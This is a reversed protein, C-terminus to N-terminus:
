ILIKCTIPEHDSFKTLSFDRFSNNKIDDPYIKYFSENLEGLNRAYAPIFNKCNPKIDEFDDENDQCGVIRMSKVFIWDLRFHFLPNHELLKYTSKFGKTTRQNSNALKGAKGSHSLAKNGSFDFMNKDTFEFNILKWFLDASKNRLYIPLGFVTPDHTKRLTNFAFLSPSLIINLPNFWNATARALNQWDTVTRVIIKTASTPDGSAESNNFDGALVLPTDIEKLEKLLHALQKKRCIPMCRNELHTVVVTLDQTSEPIDIRAVLASRHGRRLETIIPLDLVVESGKRKLKELNSIKQLESDFWNYCEPLEIVRSAIIPFKSVIASGHMAKLKDKNLDQANLYKPDVEVFEPIFSYYASKTIKAFEEVTNKYNTRQMGFDAENLTFIDSEKFINIEEIFLDKKLPRKSDKDNEEIFKTTNNLALDLEALKYAREFNWHTLRFAKRQTNKDVSLQSSSSFSNKNNLPEHFIIELKQSLEANLGDKNALQQLEEYSLFNDKFIQAKFKQNASLPCFLSCLSLLILSILKTM